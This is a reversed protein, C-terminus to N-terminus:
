LTFGWMMPHRTLAFVGGSPPPRKGDQPGAATPNDLRLAGVFLLLALPM